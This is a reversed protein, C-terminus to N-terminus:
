GRILYCLRYQRRMNSIFQTPSLKPIKSASSFHQEGILHILFFVLIFFIGDVYYNQRWYRLNTVMINGYNIYDSIYRQWWYWQLWWIASKIIIVSTHSSIYQHCTPWWNLVYFFRWYLSINGVYHNQWWCRLDTLIMFDGVDSYGILNMSLGFNRSHIYIWSEAWLSFTHVWFDLGIVGQKRDM